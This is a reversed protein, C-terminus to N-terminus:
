MEEESDEDEVDEEAAKLEEESELGGAALRAARAAVVAQRARRLRSAQRKRALTQKRQREQALRRLSRHVEQMMMCLLKPKEHALSIINYVKMSPTLRSFSRAEHRIRHESYDQEILARMPMTFLDLPLEVAITAPAAPAMVM